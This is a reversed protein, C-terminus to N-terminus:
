VKKDNKRKKYAKLMENVEVCWNKFKENYVRQRAELTGCGAEFRMEKLEENTVEIFPLDIVAEM